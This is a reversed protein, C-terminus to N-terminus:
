GPNLAKRYRDALQGVRVVYNRTERYPPVGKYRDVAGKGANYAAAALTLDNKYRKLLFALYQVGGDINQAPDFADNVGFRRATAPILQMLGQANKPSVVNPRYASEAHIIARIIAEDVGHKQAARRIEAAFAQLNLKVKGFNLDPALGCAYCQAISFIPYETRKAQVNAVGRPRSSSFHKIGDGDVWIYTTSYGMRLFKIEGTAPKGAPPQAPKTKDASPEAASTVPATFSTKQHDYVKSQKTEAVAKCQMGPVKSESFEPVDDPGICRYVTGAFASPATILALGVMFISRLVVTNGRSPGSIGRLILM